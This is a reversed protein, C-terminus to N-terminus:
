PAGTLDVIRKGTSFSGSYVTGTEPISFQFTGHFSCSVLNGETDRKLKETGFVSGLPNPYHAEDYLFAQRVIQTGASNAVDTFVYQIQQADAILEGTAKRVVATDRKNPRYVLVLDAANLGNDQAIQQVIENGSYSRAIVRGSSDTTYATGRWNLLFLDDAFSLSPQLLGAAVALACLCTTKM